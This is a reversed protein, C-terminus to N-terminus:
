KDSKTICIDDTDEIMTETMPRSMTEIVTIKKEKKEINQIIKKLCERNSKLM